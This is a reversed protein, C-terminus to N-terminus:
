YQQRKEELRKLLRERLDRMDPQAAEIKERIQQGEKEVQRVYADVEARNQLYYTIVAYVEDLRLSPFSQVIGEPTEGRQFARIVIELLVRTSGIRIAGYQDTRLPVAVSSPISIM